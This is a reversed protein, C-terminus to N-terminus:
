NYKGLSTSVNKGIICDTPMYVPVLLLLNAYYCDCTKPWQLIKSKGDLYYLITGSGKKYLYVFSYNYYYYIINFSIMLNSSLRSVDLSVLIFVCSLLKNLSTATLYTLLESCM